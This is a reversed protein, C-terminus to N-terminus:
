HGGYEGKLLHKGLARLRREAKSLDARAGEWVSSEKASLCATRNLGINGEIMNELVNATGICLWGIVKREANRAPYMKDSM